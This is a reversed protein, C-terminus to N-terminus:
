WGQTQNLLQNIREKTSFIKNKDSSIVIADLGQHQNVRQLQKYGSISLLQDRNSLWFNQEILNHSSNYRSYSHMSEDKVDFPSSIVYYHSKEFHFKRHISLYEVSPFSIPFKRQELNEIFPPSVFDTSVKFVNQGRLKFWPQKLHYHEQTFFKNQKEAYQYELKEFDASANRILEQHWYKKALDSKTVGKTMTILTDALLGTYTITRLMKVDEGPQTIHYDEEITMGMVSNNDYPVTILETSEPSVLLAQKYNRLYRHNIDGHQGSLTPDFWYEKNNLTVKVIAHNFILPTPFTLKGFLGDNHVLAPTASIGLEKLLAVMLLSKDKCDGFGQAFVTNPSRPTYGKQGILIAYYDIKEQVFDLVNIVKEYDNQSSQNLQEIKAQLEKRYTQQINFKEFAWM